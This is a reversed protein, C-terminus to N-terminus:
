GLFDFINTNDIQDIGGFYGLEVNRRDEEILENDDFYINNHGQIRYDTSTKSESGEKSFYRFLSGRTDANIGTFQYGSFPSGTLLKRLLELSQRIVLKFPSAEKEFEFPVFMEFIFDFLICIDLWILQGRMEFFSRLGMNLNEFIFDVLEDAVLTLKFFDDKNQFTNINEIENFIYNYFYSELFSLNKFKHELFAFINYNLVGEIFMKFNLSFTFYFFNFINKFRKEGIDVQRM